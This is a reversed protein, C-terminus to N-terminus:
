ITLSNQGSIRRFSCGVFYRTATTTTFLGEFRAGCEPQFVEGEPVMEADQAARHLTGFERGGISEEQRLQSNHLSQRGDKIITLGSIAM